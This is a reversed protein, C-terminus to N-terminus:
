TRAILVQVPAMPFDSTGYQEVQRWGTDRLLQALEGQRTVTRGLMRMPLDYPLVRAADDPTPAIEAQVCVFVGGPTLAAHIKRLAATMDPVFHLVSSCWILDYDGGLTELRNSLQAHAINAAAVAVTEPWDFVCGHMDAHEAQQRFLQPCQPRRGRGHRAPGLSVNGFQLPGVRQHLLLHRLFEREIVQARLRVRSASRM